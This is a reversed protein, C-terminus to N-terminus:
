LLEECFAEIRWFGNVKQTFHSLISDHSGFVEGNDAIVGKDGDSANVFDWGFDVSAGVRRRDPGAVDLDVFSALELKSKEARIARKVGTLTDCHVIEGDLLNAIGGAINLKAVADGQWHLNFVAFDM